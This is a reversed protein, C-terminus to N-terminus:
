SKKQSSVKSSQTGAKGNPSKSSINSRNTLQRDIVSRTTKRNQESESKSKASSMSKLPDSKRSEIESGNTKKRLEFNHGYSDRHESSQTIPLHKFSQLSESDQENGSLNNASSGNPSNQSGKESETSAVSKSPWCVLGFILGSGM